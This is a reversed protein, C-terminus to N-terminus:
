HVIRVNVITIISTVVPFRIRLCKLYSIGEDSDDQEEADRDEEAYEENDEDIDFDEQAYMTSFPSNQYSM